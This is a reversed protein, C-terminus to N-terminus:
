YRIQLTVRATIEQEGGIVPSAAASTAQLDGRRQLSEARSIIPANAGDVQISLISHSRLNLAGLVAEGQSKADLTAAQLAQKKAQAIASDTATFSVSDIRTAGAQVAEDLLNGIDETALRFSVLNIARYGKLRRQGDSYNYQPQLRIGTTELNEVNRSRLLEVVATSRRASEQQVQTATQGEVEVGLRVATLTTEISQSGNGTVTLSRAATEQAITPSTSNTELLTWGFLIIFGSLLAITVGKLWFQQFLHNM